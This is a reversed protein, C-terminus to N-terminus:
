QFLIRQKCPTTMESNGKDFGIKVSRNKHNIDTSSIGGRATGAQSAKATNPVMVPLPIPFNTAKSGAWLATAIAQVASTKAVLWSDKVLDGLAAEGKAEAVDVKNVVVADSYFGGDYQAMTMNEMRAAPIQDYRSRHGQNPSTGYYVRERWGLGGEIIEIRGKAGFVGVISVNTSILDSIEKSHLYLAETAQQTFPVAM